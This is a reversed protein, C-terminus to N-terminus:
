WRSLVELYTGVRRNRDFASNFCNRSKAHSCKVVNLNIFSSYEENSVNERSIQISVKSTQSYICMSSFM